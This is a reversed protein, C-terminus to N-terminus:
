SNVAERDLAESLAARVQEPTFPKQLIQRVNAARCREHSKEQIDASAVVVPLEPHLEALRESLEFGDMEPMLLDTIVLDPLGEGCAALAEVGNGAQRVEHGDATLPGAIMRRTLRSDDVVLIHAM